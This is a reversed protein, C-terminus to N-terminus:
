RSEYGVQRNALFRFIDEWLSFIIDYIWDCLLWAETDAM